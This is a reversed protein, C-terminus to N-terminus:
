SVQPVQIQHKVTLQDENAQITFSTFAEVSYATGGTSQKYLASQAITVPKTIDSDSGKIVATLELTQAGDNHTWTVRPDTTGIRLVPNGGADRLELFKWNTQIFDRLEQYGSNNIEAM